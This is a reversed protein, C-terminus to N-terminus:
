SGPEGALRLYSAFRPVGQATLGRFRFTVWSGVAPPNRRDADSFGSGLKFRQPQGGEAGPWEVWLAGTSGQLRGQGPVHGLVRAEADQFPKFKVLEASRGPVYLASARHLVLGEGGGAVTRDLLSRLGAVDPAPPQAVAQVWPQGLASVAIQLAAYREEFRGGHSPLDFVMFRLGRWAADDPVQQRVTSVADAFRGRGAWLEGDLPHAPWGATFWAPAAIPNGGRTILRRGDWYGRVGDFKESVMVDALRFGERYEGALMLLPRQAGDAAWASPAPLLGSLAVAGLGHLCLRRDQAPPQTM